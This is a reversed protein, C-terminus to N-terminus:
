INWLVMAGQVGPVFLPKCLFELSIFARAKEAPHIRGTPPPPCHHLFLSPNKKLHFDRSMRGSQSFFEWFSTPALVQPEQLKEIAPYTAVPLLFDQEKKGELRGRLDPLFPCSSKTCQRGELLLSAKHGTDWGSGLGSGESNIVRWLLQVLHRLDGLYKNIKIIKSIM